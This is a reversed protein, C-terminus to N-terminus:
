NKPQAAVPYAQLSVRKKSESLTQQGIEEFGYRAHFKASGSNMPEIYYECVIQKLGLDLVYIALDDYLKTGLAQGQAQTSVVIRDIYAFDDFRKDFWGYNESQYATDPLFAILFAVVEGDIEVIRFYGAAEGLAALGDLDLPSLFHVFSENLELIAAFDSSVADRIM